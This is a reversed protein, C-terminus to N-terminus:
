ILLMIIHGAFYKSCFEHSRILNSWKIRLHKTSLIFFFNVSSQHSCRQTCRYVNDHVDDSNSEWWQRQLRIHFFLKEHPIERVPLFFFFATIDSVKKQTNNKQWTKLLFGFVPPLNISMLTRLVIQFCLDIFILELNLHVQSISTFLM